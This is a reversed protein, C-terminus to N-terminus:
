LWFHADDTCEALSMKCIVKDLSCIQVVLLYPVEQLRRHFGVFPLPLVEFLAQFTWALDPHDNETTVICDQEQKM